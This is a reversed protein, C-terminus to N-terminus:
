SERVRPDLIIQTVDVILNLVVFMLASVLVISLIVPLDRGLIAEYALLGLGPWNVVIEIFVASGVMLYGIQLGAMSVITPLLNPMIHKFLVLRRPLGKATATRVFDRGLINLMATRTTAALLAGPIFSALLAPLALHWLLDWMGGKGALSYMGGTPFWRLAVAFVFLAVTALWYAPVSIALTFGALILRDLISRYRLAAIVGAWLGLLLGLTGGGLTLIISNKLRDLVLGLVPVKQETSDGLDGRLTRELWFAYQLYLPKDLGLAKKLELRSEGTAMPGLLADAPDGPTMHLLIFVVISAGLVVPLSATLRELVKVAM